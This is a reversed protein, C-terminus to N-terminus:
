QDPLTACWSSSDRLIVGLTTRIPQSPAELLDVTRLLLQLAMRSQLHWRLFMCVEHASVVYRAVDHQRAPSPPRYALELTSLQAFRWACHPQIALLFIGMEM